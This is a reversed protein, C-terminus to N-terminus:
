KTQSGQGVFVGAGVPVADLYRRLSPPVTYGRAILDQALKINSQTSKSAAFRAGAGPITLATAAPHANALLLSHLINQPALRGLQRMVNGMPTGRAIQKLAAQEPQTFFRMQRGDKVLAKFQNRLATDFGAATYTPANTKANEVLREITKLGQERRFLNTGERFAQIAGPNGAIIDRGPIAGVVHNDLVRRMTRLMDADQAATGSAGSLAGMRGRMKFLRGVDVHGKAAEDTLERFAKFAQPHTDKAFYKPAMEAHMDQLMRGLSGQSIVAGGQDATTYAAKRAAIVEDLSPAPVGKPASAKLGIMPLALGMAVAGEDGAVRQGAAGGIGALAAMKPTGGMLATGSLYEVGRALAERNPTLPVGLEKAREAPNTPIFRSIAETASKPVNKKGGWFEEQLRKGFDPPEKLVARALEGTGALMAGVGAGAIDATNKIATLGTDTKANPWMEAAFREAVADPSAGAPLDVSYTKGDPGDIKLTAM